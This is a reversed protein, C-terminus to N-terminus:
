HCKACTKQTGKPLGCGINKKKKLSKEDTLIISFMHVVKAWNKASFFLVFLLDSRPIPM